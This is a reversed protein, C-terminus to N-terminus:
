QEASVACSQMHDCGRTDCCHAANRLAQVCRIWVLLMISSADLEPLRGWFAMHAVRLGSSVVVVWLTKM